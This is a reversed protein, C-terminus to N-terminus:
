RAADFVARAGPHLPPGGESEAMTEPDLRALLPTAEALQARRALLTEALAAVRVSPQDARAMLAAALAVVPADATLADYTGAPIVGAHFAPSAAIVARREAPSLPTLRADCADLARAVLPAPHGIVLAVADLRGACLEDVAAGADLTLVRAFGDVDVGAAAFVSRASAHRGSAPQGIDVRLGALDTLRAVGAERRTLLIFAEDFLRAVLRLPGQPAADHAARVVDWQAVGFGLDGSLLADVNYRSGPTTEPSCRLRGAHAANVEACIARVARDYGVDLEGGGVSFFGLRAEVGGAPSAFALLLAVLLRGVM